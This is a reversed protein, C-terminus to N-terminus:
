ALDLTDNKRLKRAWALVKKQSSPEFPMTFGMTCGTAVSIREDPADMRWARAIEIAAEAAEMPDEYERGEGLHKYKEVLMDPNAYDLGGGAIEVTLQGDPWYCQRSVFYTM